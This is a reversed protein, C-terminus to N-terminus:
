FMVWFAVGLAVSIMIVIFLIDMKRHISLNSTNKKVLLPKTRFKDALRNTYIDGFKGLHSKKIKENIYARKAKKRAMMRKTITIHHTSCSGM